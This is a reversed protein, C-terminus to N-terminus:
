KLTRKAVRQVLEEVKNRRRTRAGQQEFAYKREIAMLEQIFAKLADPTLPQEVGDEASAEAM